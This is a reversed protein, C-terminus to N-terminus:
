RPPLNIGTPVPEGLSFIFAPIHTDAFVRFFFLTPSFPAAFPRLSLTEALLSLYPPGNIRMNPFSTEKLLLPVFFPSYSRSSRFSYFSLVVVSVLFPPPANLVFTGGAESIVAFGDRPDCFSTAYFPGSSVFAYLRVGIAARM